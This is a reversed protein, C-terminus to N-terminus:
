LNRKNLHRAWRKRGGIHVLRMGSLLWAFGKFRSGGVANRSFERACEVVALEISSLLQIDRASM